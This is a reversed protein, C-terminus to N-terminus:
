KNKIPIEVPNVIMTDKMINMIDGVAGMIKVYSEVDFNDGLGKLIDRTQDNAFGITEIEYTAEALGFEAAAAVKSPIDVSVKNNVRKIKLFLRVGAALRTTINKQPGDGPTCITDKYQIYDIIAIKEKKGLNLNVIGFLSATGQNSQDIIYVFKKSRSNLTGLRRPENVSCTRFNNIVTKVNSSDILIENPLDYTEYDNSATTEIIDVSEMYGQPNEIGCSFLLVFLTLFVLTKKQRKM